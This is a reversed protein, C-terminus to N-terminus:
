KLSYVWTNVLFYQVEVYAQLDAQLHSTYLHWRSLSHFFIITCFLTTHTFSWSSIFRWSRMSLFPLFRRLTVLLAFSFISDFPKRHELSQEEYRKKHKYWHQQVICGEVVLQSDQDRLTQQPYYICYIHFDYQLWEVVGPAVIYSTPQPCFSKNCQVPLPSGVPIYM